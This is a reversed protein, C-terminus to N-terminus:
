LFKVTNPIERYLLSVNENRSDAAAIVLTFALVIYIMLM